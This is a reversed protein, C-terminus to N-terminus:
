FTKRKFSLYITVYHQNSNPLIDYDTSRGLKFVYEDAYAVNLAAVLKQDLCAIEGIRKKDPQKRNGINSQDKVFIDVLCEGEQIQEADAFSAICVVDEKESDSPRCEERYVNGNVKGKFFTKAVKFLDTEIDYLTKIM